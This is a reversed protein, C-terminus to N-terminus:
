KQAEKRVWADKETQLFSKFQTVDVARIYRAASIRLHANRHNLLRSALQKVRNPQTKAFGRKMAEFARRALSAFSKDATNELFDATNESPFISLAELARFRLINLLSTNGAIEILVSDTGKGLRQFAEANLEWHRGELQKLVEAKDPDAVAIGSFNWILACIFFFCKM